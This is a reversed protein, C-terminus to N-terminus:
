QKTLTITDLDEGSLTLNKDNNSFEYSYCIPDIDPFEFLTLCLFDNDIDYYFWHPHTENSIQNVTSDNFFEFTVATTV